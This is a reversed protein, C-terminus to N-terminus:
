LEEVEWNENIWLGFVDSDPYWARVNQVASRVHSRHTDADVPNGACDHHAIVAIHKSGHKQVSIDIRKKVSNITEYSVMNALIGDPGAETIMDVFAVGLKNKLYKVAPEQVRGDMCNIATAFQANDTM